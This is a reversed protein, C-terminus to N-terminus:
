NSASVACGNDFSITVSYGTSQLNDQFLFELLRSSFAKVQRDNVEGIWAAEAPFDSPPQTDNADIIAAGGFKIETLEQFPPTEPWNLSITMITAPSAGNNAIILNIKQGAIQIGNTTLACGPTATMTATATDTPTATRTPTFTSTFTATNAPPLTFSPTATYIPTSTSSSITTRTPTASSGPASTAVVTHTTTSSPKALGTNSATPTSTKASTSSPGLTATKSSTPSRDPTAIQAPTNTPSPASPATATHAAISTSVGATLAIQEYAQTPDVPQLDGPNCNQGSLTCSLAVAEPPLPTPASPPGAPNLGNEGGLPVGVQQGAGVYQTQGGATVSASGALMSLTLEKNAEAQLAADGLLVIEAGNAVFRVGAGNPLDVLIGDFPVQACALQGLQSSFYFAQMDGSANILSTDGFVLFTVSEGPLTNPLNAVLKFVAIGWDNTQPNLPSTNLSLLNEIGVIDGRADFRSASGSALEAEITTNGYCAQNAGLRACGQASAQLAAAILAQCRENSNGPPQGALTSQALGPLPTPRGVIAAATFGCILALLVFALSFFIAAPSLRKKPQEKRPPPPRMSRRPLSAPLSAGDTSSLPASASATIQRLRQAAWTQQPDLQLIRKLCFVEERHNYALKSLLTWAPINNKDLELAEGVRQRAESKNGAAALAEAQHLLTLLSPQSESMKDFALRTM